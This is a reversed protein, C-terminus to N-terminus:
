PSLDMNMGRVWLVLYGGCEFCPKSCVFPCFSSTEGGSANELGIRSSLIVIKTFILHALGGDSGIALNTKQLQFHGCYDWM